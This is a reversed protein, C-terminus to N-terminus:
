KCAKDIYLAYNIGMMSSLITALGEITFGQTIIAIGLIIWICNCILGYTMASINNKYDKKTKELSKEYIEKPAFLRIINHITFMTIGILAWIMYLNHYKELNTLGAAGLFLFATSLSM